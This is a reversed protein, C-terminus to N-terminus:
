AETLEPAAITHTTDLNEFRVLHPNFYLKISDTPGNRHKEILIDAINPRDSNKRDKDERYIFMVVDADQEIAGSERLDALRPIQPSRHEVARSLQSLALIPVNLERALSKLSRSIESIELVRSEQNNSSQMLQLYDIILLGLGHRSQLRRALTRIQMVTNSGLDDIYIPAEALTGFAKQLRTFDNEEGRYSLNGTRLKWLNVGSEAALLRDVLQEKSMEISFIGVPIKHRCATHRAIDLALTTKGLSPRSAVIILDSKQLGSLLNDLDHFGTPIGRLSASGQHLQDIRSFADQLAEKLSTFERIVGRQSVAFITKEAEDLAREIDKTEQYALEAIKTGASILDRLIKKEKVIKAYYAIHASTPVSNVLSALYSSGGIKDFLKKAKLINTLGLIDVPNGQQYIELMAQYILEHTKQYFDAPGLIDAIKTIAEKDIMLSGLVSQEAEINHPPMKPDM